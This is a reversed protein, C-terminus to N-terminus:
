LDRRGEIADRLIAPNAYEIQSGAPLGRALQTVRVSM